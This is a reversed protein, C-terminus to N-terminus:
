DRFLCSNIAVGERLGDDLVISEKKNLVEFIAKYIYIGVEIFEVRGSGVLSRIEDESSDKFISLCSQLDDLTVCTGNVQSKDYHFFDQGLKIAAVTTPTGATAVFTFEELNINQTLLFNHIELKKLEM